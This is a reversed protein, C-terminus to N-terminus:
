TCKVASPHLAAAAAVAAAAAGLTEVGGGGGGGYQNAKHVKVAALIFGINTTTLPCFSLSSRTLHKNCSERGQFMNGNNPLHGVRGGGGWVGGCGLFIDATFTLNM